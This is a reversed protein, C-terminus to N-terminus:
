EREYETYEITQEFQEYGKIDKDVVVLGTSLIVLEDTLTYKFEGSPVDAPLIISVNFYLVSVGLSMVDWEYVQHTTTNELKLHLTDNFSVEGTRPVFLAQPADTKKLYIM